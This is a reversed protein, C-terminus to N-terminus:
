KCVLSASRKKSDEAFRCQKVRQKLEVDRQQGGSYHCRVTVTRGEDYIGSLTYTNPAHQEDDPALYAQDQPPGDFIDIQTVVAKSQAPCVPAPKACALTSCTCAATLLLAAVRSDLNLSM